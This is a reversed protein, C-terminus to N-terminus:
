APPLLPVHHTASGLVLDLGPTDMAIELTARGITGLRNTAVKAM